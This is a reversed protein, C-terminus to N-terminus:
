IYIYVYIDKDKLRTGNKFLKGKQWSKIIEIIFYLANQNKEIHRITKNYHINEFSINFFFRYM